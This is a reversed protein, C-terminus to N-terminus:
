NVLFSQWAKQIDAKQEALAVPDLLTVGEHALPMVEAVDKSILSTLDKAPMQGSLKDTWKAQQKPHEAIWKIFAFAVDANPAGKSVLAGGAFRMSNGWELHLDPLHDQMLRFAQQNWMLSMGVEKDIMVQQQMDGSTPWVKINPKMEKLKKMARPIDLPFLDKGAVGDAQLAFAMASNPSATMARDGPFNKVDFFEEANTPCKKILAPNCAILSTTSGYDLNYESFAGEVSTKELVDMLEQPFKAAYDNIIMDGVKGGDIMDLTINKQQQQLIVPATTDSGNITFKVKVGTEKSFPDALFTKTADTWDGGWSVINLTRGKLDDGSPISSAADKGGKGGGGCAALSALALAALSAMFTRRISRAM